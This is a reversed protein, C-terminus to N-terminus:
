KKKQEEIGETIKEHVKWLEDGKVFFPVTFREDTGDEWATAVESYTKGNDRTVPPPYSFSYKVGGVFTHYITAKNGQKM